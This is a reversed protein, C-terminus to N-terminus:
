QTQPQAFLAAFAKRPDERQTRQNEVWEVVATVTKKMNNKKMLQDRKAKEREIVEGRKILKAKAMYKEELSQIGDSTKREKSRRKKKAIIMGNAAPSLDFIKLSNFIFIRAFFSCVTISNVQLEREAM